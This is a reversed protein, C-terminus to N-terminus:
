LFSGFKAVDSSLSSFFVKRVKKIKLATPFLFFWPRLFPVSSPSYSCPKRSGKNPPFFFLGANGFIVKEEECLHKEEKRLFIMEM